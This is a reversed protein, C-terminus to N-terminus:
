RVGDVLFLEALVRMFSYAYSKGDPTMRVGGIPAVGASDAPLIEKFLERRGTAPDLLFVKVPVGRAITYLRGDATWSEPREGEAALGAVPVPEGGELPYVYFRRDPGRVVVSTGDRSVARPFARYGEPTV